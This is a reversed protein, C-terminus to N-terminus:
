TMKMRKFIKMDHIMFFISSLWCLDPDLLHQKSHLCLYMLFTLPVQLEIVIEQTDIM